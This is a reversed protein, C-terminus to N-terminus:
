GPVGLVLQPATPSQRSGYGVTDNSASAIAFSYVGDGGSFLSAPLPIEAWTGLETAGAAGLPDGTLPPANNWTITRETWSSGTLYATGGDPSPDRVYLRLKATVVPQTMGTVAFRLYARQFTGSAPQSKISLVTQTGYNTTPATSRVWSDDTPAYVVSPTVTIYSPKAEVSSGGNPTWTTLTVTYSGAAEYTHTPSQETSPASGDGFDWSWAIPNGTTTDNFSVTLPATGGTQSVTFDADLVLSDWNHWYFDTTDNSALVTLGTAPSVGRKSSTADNVDTSAGDAIFVSGMGTPFSIPDLPSTKKYIKGGPEPATALVTVAGNVEDVVVIPRTHHDAVTGVVHSAWTGAAPDRILLLVLPEPALTKSTKVAAYVRGTSDAKLNIHDDAIDPGALATELTWADDPQGDVHEAWYFADDIQHSWMIGVKGPLAVISSIDDFSVSAAQPLPLVFPTGWSADDGHSRNVWVQNNRMWTAWLTGTSDKELVLAESRSDSIQVPFGPDLTYADGADDYSYRYLRAQAGSSGGNDIFIHSAVYLHTGDWLADARSQNREDVRVGTNVWSQSSSDLRWIRYGDRAASDYLIGWWSGDNWWLKSEPKAGTPASNAIGASPPGRFGM